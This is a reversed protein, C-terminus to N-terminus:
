IIIRCLPCNNEKKNRFWQQLCEKHFFHNCYLKLIKDNAQYVELCISCQEEFNNQIFTQEFEKLKSYESCKNKLYILSSTAQLILICLAILALFSFAVLTSNQHYQNSNYYEQTNENYNYYNMQSQKYDEM